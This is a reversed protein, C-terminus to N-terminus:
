RDSRWWTSDRGTRQEWERRVHWPYTEPVLGFDAWILPRGVDKWAVPFCCKDFATACAVLQARDLLPEIESPKALYVVNTWSGKTGFGTDQLSSMITLDDPTLHGLVLRLGKREWDAAVENRLLEIETEASWLDNRHQDRMKSRRWLMAYAGRRTDSRVMLQGGAPHARMQELGFEKGVNSAILILEDMEADTLFDFLNQIELSIRAEKSSTAIAELKAIRSELRTLVKM